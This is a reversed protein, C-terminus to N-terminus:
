APEFARVRLEPATLQATYVATGPQQRRGGGGLGGLDVPDFGMEDILASVVAKAEEDDGSLPIALRGPTHRPRGGDRLVEWYLTNFAKVTNPWGLHARLKESSTTADGDLEPDHGDRDPYYNCADVVVKGDFGSAPLERLRGYPIAAVVLEGFAIADAVTAARVGAGLKAAVARLTDPGRSNSIAVPYGERAFHGALTAGIHGAGIIAIRM